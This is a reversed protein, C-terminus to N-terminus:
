SLSTVHRHSWGGGMAVVNAECVFWSFPNVFISHLLVVISTVSAFAAFVRIHGVRHILSQIIKAGIFYGVFYGSFLFGTSSLGFNEKVARVGLLTGQFGHALMIFAMGM